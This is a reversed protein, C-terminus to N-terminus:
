EENDNTNDEDDIVPDKTIDLNEIDFVIAYIQSAVQDLIKRKDIIKKTIIQDQQMLRAAQEIEFKYSEIKRLLERGTNGLESLINNFIYANNTSNNEQATKISNLVGDDYRYDVSFEDITYFITFTDNVNGFRKLEEKYKDLLGIVEELTFIDQGDIIWGKGTEYAFRFVNNINISENTFNNINNHLIDGPWIIITNDNYIVGRIASYQSMKKVDQVERSTPNVFVEFYSNTYDFSDYFESKKRLKTNSATNINFEPSYIYEDIDSAFVILFSKSINGIRMLEEKYYNIMNIVESVTYEHQADILWGDQPDWCFRFYDIDIPKDIMYKIEGHLFIGPWILLTGDNSIAGRITNFDDQDRVTQIEKNTPNIFVEYYDNNLKTADYFECLKIKSM